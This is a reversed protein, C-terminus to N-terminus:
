GCFFLYPHHLIFQTSFSHFLQYDYFRLHIVWDRIISASFFLFCLFANEFSFYFILIVLIDLVYYSLILIVVPKPTIQMIYESFLDVPNCKFPITIISYSCISYCSMGTTILELHLVQFVCFIFLHIYYNIQTVPTPTVPFFCFDM